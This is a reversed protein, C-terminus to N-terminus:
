TVYAVNSQANTTDNSYNYGVSNNNSSGLSVQAHLNNFLAATQRSLSEAEAMMAKVKDEVLTLDAMQNKLAAELATTNNYQAVKSMVETAQTRAGYFSAAASILKSQADYGIGVLKSAMEPGSALAKIYEVASDMSKTRLDIAGSLALEVSKLAAMQNAKAAEFAIQATTTDAQLSLKAVETRANLLGSVASILKSQADYGIGIVRSAIDPGSALSKVYDNAAQMASVRLQLVRELTKQLLDVSTIAIKRSSEALADQAKQEIQLVASAAVDPPLPFRRGAFQAVVADQARTKDSLIRAQDDGWIQAAVTSPLAVNANGLSATLWAEASDYVVGETAFYTTRYSKFKGELLAVLDAYTSDFTALISATDITAPIVVSPEIVGPATVATGSVTAISTSALTALRTTVASLAASDDPFYTSRFYDFKNGLLAVLEQYKTDFMSMIDTQNATSPIDVTPESITPVTVSGATVHLSGGALNNDLTAQLNAVKTGYATQASSGLSWSANILDSVYARVTQGAPDVIGTAGSNFDLPM